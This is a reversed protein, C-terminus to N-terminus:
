RWLFIGQTCSRSHKMTTTPLGPCAKKIRRDELTTHYDPTLAAPNTQAIKEAIEAAHETPDVMTKVVNSSLTHTSGLCTEVATILSANGQLISVRNAERTIMHALAEQFEASDGNLQALPVSRPVLGMSVINCVALRAASLRVPPLGCLWRCFNLHKTSASIETSSATCGKEELESKADDEGDDRPLLNRKASRSVLDSADCGDVLFAVEPVKGEGKMEMEKNNFRYLKGLAVEISGEDNHFCARIAAQRRSMKPKPSVPPQAPQAEAQTSPVPSLPSADVAASSM